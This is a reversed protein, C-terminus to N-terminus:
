KENRIQVVITMPSSEQGNNDVSTILYTEHKNPIRQHDEFYPDITTGILTSLNGRYVKYHDVGGPTNWTLINILDAHAPFRRIIQKGSAIGSLITEPAIVPPLPAANALGVGATAKIQLSGAKSADEPWVAMINGAQNVAVSIDYAPTSAGANNTPSSLTKIFSWTGLSYGAGQIIMHDGTHEKWIAVGDGISNLSLVPYGAAAVGTDSPGSIDIPATWTNSKFSFTSSAIFKHMTNSREFIVVANGMSDVGIDPHMSPYKPDSAILTTSSLSGNILTKSQITQDQNWVIVANGYSDIGASPFQASKGKQAAIVLPSRWEGKVFQAGHIEVSNDDSEEWVAIASGSGNIAIAKATTLNASKLGSSIEGLDSWPMGLPKKASHIRYNGKSFEMWIALAHGASDTVVQPSIQANKSHAVLHPPTGIPPSWVGTSSLTRSMIQTPFGEDWIFIANGASDMAVKSNSASGGGSIKVAGTWVRLSHNYLAAWIDETAATGATRGWVAVANGMPDIAIAANGDTDGVPPNSDLNLAPTGWTLNFAAYGQIICLFFFLVRM